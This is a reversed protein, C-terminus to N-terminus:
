NISNFSDLDLLDVNSYNSTNKNALQQTLYDITLSKSQIQTELKVLIKKQEEVLEKMKICEVYYNAKNNYLNLIWKQHVKTKIHTCFNSNTKYIKEKRAGCPCYLGNKIIPIKDIYEGKENVSPTYTDPTLSIDM